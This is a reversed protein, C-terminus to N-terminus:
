ITAHHSITGAFYTWLTKLWQREVLSIAVAFGLCSVQATHTSIIASKLLVSLSCFALQKIVTQVPTGM